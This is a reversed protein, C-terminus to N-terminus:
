PRHLESRSTSYTEPNIIETGGIGNLYKATIEILQSGSKNSTVEVEDEDAAFAASPLISTLIFCVLTLISVIRKKAKAM